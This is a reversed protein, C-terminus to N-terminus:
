NAIYSKTKEKKRKEEERKERAHPTHTEVFKLVEVYAEPHSLDIGQIKGNFGPLREIPKDNFVITLSDNEKEKNTVLEKFRTYENKVWPTQLYEENRCIILMTESTYLAYLIMAEYDASTRGRIERESFFPTYGNRKLLDYIADADYADETWTTKLNDTQENDIRSVKVCIFCDYDLGSQKFKLFENRIYDIEQAKEKYVKEQKQTAFKLASLYNKNQTFQKDTFEHCIPQLRNNVTDKIYQVKFEALAMGWYAEPEQSDYDTARAYATYAEDFKGTDLDHEGQRLFSLAVPSIDKKPVPYKRFCIECEVVDDTARRLDISAGCGDKCKIVGSVM